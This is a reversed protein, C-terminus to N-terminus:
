PCQMNVEVSTSTFQTSSTRFGSVCYGLPVLGNPTGAPAKPGRAKMKARASRSTRGAEIFGFRHM